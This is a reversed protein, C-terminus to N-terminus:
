HHFTLGEQSMFNPTWDKFGSGRKLAAHMELVKSEDDSEYVLVGHKDVIGIYEGAQKINFKSM